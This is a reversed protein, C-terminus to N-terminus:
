EICTDRAVLMELLTASVLITVTGEPEDLEAAKYLPLEKEEGGTIRCMVPELRDIRRKAKM